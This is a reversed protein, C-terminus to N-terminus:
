WLFIPEAKKINKKIYLCLTLCVSLSFTMFVLVFQCSFLKNLPFSAIKYAKINEAQLVTKWQDLGVLSIKAVSLAYFSTRCDHGPHSTFDGRVKSFIKKRLNYLNRINEKASHPSVYNDKSTQHKMKEGLDDFILKSFYVGRICSYFSLIFFM